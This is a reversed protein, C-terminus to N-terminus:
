RKGRARRVTMRDVGAVRAAEAEPLGADCAAVIAAYTQEALDRERERAKAWKRGLTALDAAPDPAAPLPTPVDVVTDPAAPAPRRAARQDRDVRAFLGVTVATM